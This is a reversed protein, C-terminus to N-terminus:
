GSICGSSCRGSCQCGICGRMVADVSAGVAAGVSAGVAVGVSAGVAAGVAAGMVAGVFARSRSWGGSRRCIRWSRCRNHVWPQVVVAAAGVATGVSEGIGPAAAAGLQGM